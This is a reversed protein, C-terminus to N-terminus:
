HRPQFVIFETPQALFGGHRTQQHSNVRNVYGGLRDLGEQNGSGRVL